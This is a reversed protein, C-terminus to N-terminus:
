REDANAQTALELTHTLLESGGVAGHGPVVLKINPYRNIVNKIAVPWESVSADTINGMNSSELSRTLCGGFLIQTEPLWVVLNDSTHGAGPYYAHIQGDLMSFTSGKFTFGSEELGKSELLINTASSTYTPIQLENLYNIGSSRDEHSHTHLSAKLSYGSKSIWDVLVSTDAELWPTDIIYADKGNLVVLGNSPYNGYGNLEKYSTHLYVGDGIKEIDMEGNEINALVLKPSFVLFVFVLRIM